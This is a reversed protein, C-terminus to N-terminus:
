VSCGRSLVRVCTCWVFKGEGRSADAQNSPSSASHVSGTRSM